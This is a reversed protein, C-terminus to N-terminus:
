VYMAGREEKKDMNGIPVWFNRSMGEFTRTRGVNMIKPVFFCYRM